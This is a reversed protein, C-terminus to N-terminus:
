FLTIKCTGQSGEAHCFNLELHLSACRRQKRHCSRGQSFLRHRWLSSARPLVSLCASLILSLYLLYQTWHVLFIRTCWPLGHSCWSGQTEKLVVASNEYWLSFYVNTRLAPCIKLYINRRKCKRNFISLAFFSFLAAMYNCWLHVRSWSFHLVPTIWHGGCVNGEVFPVTKDNEWFFVLWTGDSHIYNADPSLVFGWLLQGCM